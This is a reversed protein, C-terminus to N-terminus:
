YGHASWSITGLKNLNDTGKLSVTFGTEDKDTVRPVAVETGGTTTCIVEPVMHFIRNFNVRIGATPVEVFGRDTVDPVDVDIKLNTLVARDDTVSQMVARFIAYQYDYDGQVFETFPAFGPAKGANMLDRFESLTLDGATLLMDSVVANGKRVYQEFLAFAESKRLTVAKALADSVSFGESINRRYTIARGFTESLNVIEDINLTVKKGLKDTMTWEENVALTTSFARSEQFGISEFVRIMFSIYDVYAEALGITEALAKYYSFTRKEAFGITENISKTGVRRGQEAIALTEDVAASYTSDHALEWTKLARVDAWNWTESWNYDSGPIPTNVIEVTDTM